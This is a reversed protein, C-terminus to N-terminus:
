TGVEREQRARALVLSAAAAALALAAGVVWGATCGAVHAPALGGITVLVVVGLASAVHTPPSGPFGQDPSVRYAAITRAARSPMDEM